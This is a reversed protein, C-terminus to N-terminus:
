ALEEFRDAFTAASGVVWLAGTRDSGWLPGRRLVHGSPIGLTYGGAGFWLDGDGQVLLSGDPQVTSGVYDMGHLETLMDDVPGPDTGNWLAAHYEPEKQRYKTTLTEERGERRSL